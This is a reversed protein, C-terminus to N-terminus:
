AADVVTSEPIHIRQVPSTTVDPKFCLQDGLRPEGFQIDLSGHQTRRMGGVLRRGRVQHKKALLGTELNRVAVCTGGRVYYATNGTFYIRREVKDSSHSNMAAREWNDEEPNGRNDARTRHLQEHLGCGIFREGM